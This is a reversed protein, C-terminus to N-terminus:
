KRGTLTISRLGFDERGCTTDERVSVVTVDRFGSARIADLYEETRLAGGVCRCWLSPDNRVEDPLETSATIDAIAFMGGPVLVRYIESFAKRKDPTLNIVCNSIVRDVSGDPLPMREIEGLLFEANGVDLAAANRRALDVMAPTMDLGLVKGAPGVLRAALFIERGSGSGLDLVTMGPGIGAHDLPAGCGLNLELPADRHPGHLRTRPATGNKAPSVARQKTAAEKLGDTECCGCSPAHKGAIESYNRIISERMEM